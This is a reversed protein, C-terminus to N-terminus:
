DSSIWVVTVGESNSRFTILSGTELPNDVEHYSAAKQDGSGPKPPGGFQALMALVLIAAVGGMPVLWRLWFAQKTGHGKSAKQERETKQEARDIGAAIKSWYFDRQEPVSRELENGNLWERGQTLTEHLQKLEEDSQILTELGARDAAPLEGDVLAQVKYITETEM